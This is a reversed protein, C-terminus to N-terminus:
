LRVQGMTSCLYPLLWAEVVNTFLVKAVALSLRPIPAHRAIMQAREEADRPPRAVGSTFHSAGVQPDGFKTPDSTAINPAPQGLKTIWLNPSPM